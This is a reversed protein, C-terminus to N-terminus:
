GETQGLPVSIFREVGPRTFDVVEDLEVKDAHGGHLIQLLDYREAPQNGSEELIERGTMKEVDVVLQQKDVRIRYHKGSPPTQGENSCHEVDIVEQETKM